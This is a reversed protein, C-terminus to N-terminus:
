LWFRVPLEFERREVLSASRVEGKDRLEKVKQAKIREVFMEDRLAPRDLKPDVRGSISLRMGPRDQLGKALLDLKKNSEPTVGNTFTRADNYGLVRNDVADVAYLHQTIRGLPTRPRSSAAAAARPSVGNTPRSS